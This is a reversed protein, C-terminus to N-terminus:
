IKRIEPSFHHCKVVRVVFCIRILAPNVLLTWDLYFSEHVILQIVAIANYEQDEYVALFAAM